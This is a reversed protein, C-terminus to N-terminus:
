SGPVDEFGFFLDDFFVEARVAAGAEKDDFRADFYIHLHDYGAPLTGWLEQFDTKVPLEFRVWRSLEPSSTGILKARGNVTVIPSEPSGALQYRLQYNDLKPYRDPDEPTVISRTRPDGVVILAVELTLDTQESANEWRDVRYWGALLDPFRTPSIEQSPGMVRVAQEPQGPQWSLGIRAAARGSHTKDTVIEFGSTKLWGQSGAEFGPNALQNGALVVLPTAALAQGAGEPVPAPPASSESCALVLVLLSVFGPRRGGLGAGAMPRPLKFELRGGLM